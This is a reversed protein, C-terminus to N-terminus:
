NNKQVLVHGWHWNFIWVGLTAGHWGKPVMTMVAAGTCGTQTWIYLLSSSQIYQCLYIPSTKENTQTTM